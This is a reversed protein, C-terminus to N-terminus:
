GTMPRHPKGMAVTSAQGKGKTGAFHQLPDGNTEDRSILKRV